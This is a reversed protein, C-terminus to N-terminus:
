LHLFYQNIPCHSFHFQSPTLGTFSKFERIFHAQDYYGTQYTLETLSITSESNAQQFAAQRRTLHQLAHQFRMIRILQKPSVGVYDLFIQQLYRYSIHCRRTIADLNAAGKEAQICQVAYTLIAEKSSQNRRNLQKTLYANTISLLTAINNESVCNQVRSIFSAEFLADLSIAKNTFEHLAMGCFLSFAHPYFWIGFTKGQGQAKMTLPELIQGIVKASAEKENGRYFDLGVHFVVEVCGDAFFVDTVFDPYTSESVYYCKVLSQLEACPPYTHVLM